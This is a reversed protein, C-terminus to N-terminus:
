VSRIGDIHGIDVEAPPGKSKRFEFVANEAQMKPKNGGNRPSASIRQYGFQRYVTSISELV